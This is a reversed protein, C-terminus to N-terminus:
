DENLYKKRKSASGGRKHISFYGEETGDITDREKKKLKDNLRDILENHSEELEELRKKLEKSETQMAELKEQMPKISLLYNVFVAGGGSLLHKILEGVQPHNLLGNLDFGGKQDKKDSDEPKKNETEM